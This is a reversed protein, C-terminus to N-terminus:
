RGVGTSTVALLVLQDERLLVVHLVFLKRHGVSVGLPPAQKCWLLVVDHASM